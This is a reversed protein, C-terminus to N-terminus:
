VPIALLPCPARRLVQQTLSGHLTDRLSHPGRTTMIILDAHHELAARVVEDVVEGQRHQQQWTCGEIKPLLSEPLAVADGVHVLTVEIPVSLAVAIRIAFDLAPLPSPRHYIPVLIRQLSFRGDERSVFGSAKDPVFLTRIRSRQAIREAISPQLWRLLGSRGATAMVILDTPHTELYNLISHLPKRSKLSVKKVRLALQEFVASQPSGSELLGWRELTARVAPFRRWEESSNGTHLITFETKRILALALAHAFANESAASFDSPHFVSNVFPTDPALAEDM